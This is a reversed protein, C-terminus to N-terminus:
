RTSTHTFLNPQHLSLLPFPPTHPLTNKKPPGKASLLIVPLRPLAHTHTNPRAPPGGFPVRHFAGTLRVVKVLTSHGVPTMM